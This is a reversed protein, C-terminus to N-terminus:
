EPSAKYFPTICCVTYVAVVARILFVETQFSANSCNNSLSVTFVCRRSSASLSYMGDWGDMLHSCCYGSLSICLEM